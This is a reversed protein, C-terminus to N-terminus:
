HNSDKCNRERKKEMEQDDKHTQTKNVGLLTKKISALHRLKTMKSYTIPNLFGVYDIWNCDQEKVYLVNPVKEM